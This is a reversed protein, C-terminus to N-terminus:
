LCCAQHFLALFFVIKPSHKKERFIFWFILEKKQISIERSLSLGIPGELQLTCVHQKYFLYEITVNKSAFFTVSSFAYNISSLYCTHLQHFFTTHQNHVCLRLILTNLLLLHFSSFSEPQRHSAHTPSYRLSIVVEKRRPFVQLICSLCLLSLCCHCQLSLYLCAFILFCLM